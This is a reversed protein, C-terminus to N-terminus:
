MFLIDGTAAAALRLGYAEAMKGEGRTRRDKWRQNGTKGTVRQLGNCDFSFGGQIPPDEHDM